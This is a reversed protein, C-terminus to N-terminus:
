HKRNYGRFGIGEARFQVVTKLFEIPHVLATAITGAFMSLTMTEVLNPEWFRKYSAAAQNM